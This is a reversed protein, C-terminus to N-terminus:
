SKIVFTQYLELGIVLIPVSVSTNNFVAWFGIALASTQIQKKPVTVFFVVALAPCQCGVISCDVRENTISCCNSTSLSFYTYLAISFIQIIQIVPLLLVNM